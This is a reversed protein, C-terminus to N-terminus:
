FLNRIMCAGIWIFYSIVGANALTVYATGRHNALARQAFADDPAAVVPGQSERYTWGPETAPLLSAKFPKYKRILVYLFVIASAAMVGMAALMAGASGSSELFPVVSFALADNLFHLFAVLLYSRTRLYVWAIAVGYVIHPFGQSFNDHMIGFLIGSMLLYAIDPCGAMKRYILVRFMYEEGVGAVVAGLLIGPLIAALSSQDLDQVTTAVAAGTGLLRVLLSNLGMFPLGLAISSGLGFIFVIVSRGFSLPATPRTDVGNPIFRMFILLAVFGFAYVPIQHSLYQLWPNKPWTDFWPNLALRAVRKVVSFALFAFGIQICIKRPNRTAAM